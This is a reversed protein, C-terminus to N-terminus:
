RRAAPRRGRRRSGREARRGLAMVEMLLAADRLESYSAVDLLVGKPEGDEGTLVVPRRTKAVSRLLEDGRRTLEAMPKLEHRYRETARRRRM